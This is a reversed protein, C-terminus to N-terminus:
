STKGGNKSAIELERDLDEDSMQNVLSRNDFTQNIIAQPLLSKMAKFVEQTNNIYERYVRNIAEPRSIKKTTTGSADKGVGDTQEIELWDNDSEELKDLQAELHLDYDEVKTTLKGMNVLVLAENFVKTEPSYSGTVKSHLERIKRKTTKFEVLTASIARNEDKTEGLVKLYHKIIKDDRLASEKKKFQRRKQMIKDAERIQAETLSSDMIQKCTEM